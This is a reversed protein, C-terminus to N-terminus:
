PTVEDTPRVAVDPNLLRPRRGDRVFDLALQAATRGLQEESGQSYWAVHPTVVVDDRGLLAEHATVDPEGELVDLGAAGVLGTDLADALAATDVLGGRATNVLVPTRRMRAFAAADLLHHTQPTLPAHLSIVDSTALLEDLSTAAVGRPAFDGPGILPDYAVVELGFATARAAVASGIRGLGVIGLRRGHIRTVPLHRVSRWSGHAEATFHGLRRIAALMLLMAHDAVENTGYDAVNTVMVGLRTAAALDIRDFGVGGRVVLRLRPFSGLVEATVWDGGVVLAQAAAAGALAADDLEAPLLVYPAAAEDLTRTAAPVFPSAAAWVAITAPETM